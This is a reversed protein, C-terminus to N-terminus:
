VAWKGKLQYAILTILLGIGLYAFQLWHLEQILILQIIIWGSTMIGGAMAWNYRNASRSIATYIAILNVSGVVTLLLIGPIVFDNFPTSELIGTSLDIGGGNPDNIMIFGSVISTIAVAAILIYMITRM